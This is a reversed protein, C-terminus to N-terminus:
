VRRSIESGFCIGRQRIADFSTHAHCSSNRLTAPGPILERPLHRIELAVVEVPAAAPVGGEDPVGVLRELPDRAFRVREEHGLVPEAETDERAQPAHLRVDDRHDCAEDAAVVGHPAAHGGAPGLADEEGGVRGALPRPTM